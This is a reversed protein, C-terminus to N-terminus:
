LEYFDKNRPVDVSFSTLEMVSLKAQRINFGPACGGVGSFGNNGVFHFHLGPYNIGALYSPLQFGVLTGQIEKLDHYVMDDIIDNIGPFPREYVPHQSRTRLSNFSGKIRIAYMGKQINLNEAIWDQLKDQALNVLEVERGPKFFTVMASPTKVGPDTVEVANGDASARYVKGDLVIMEGALNNFTGLGFDGAQLLQDM